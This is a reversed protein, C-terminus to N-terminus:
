IRSGREFAAGPVEEGGLAGHLRKTVWVIKMTPLAVDPRQAADQSHQDHKSCEPLLADVVVPSSAAMYAIVSSERMAEMSTPVDISPHM